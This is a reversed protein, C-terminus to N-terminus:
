GGGPGGCRWGWRRRQQLIGAAGGRRAERSRRTRGWLGGCPCTDQPGPRLQRVCLPPLRHLDAYLRCACPLRVARDHAPFPRPPNRPGPPFCSALAHSRRRVRNSGRRGRTRARAATTTRPPPTRGARAGGGGTGGRAGRGSGPGALDSPAVRLGDAGVDTGGGGGTNCVCVCISRAAVRNGRGRGGRRRRRRSVAHGRQAAGLRWFAGGGGGGGGRGATGRTHLRRIYPLRRRAGARLGCSVTCVCVSVNRDSGAAWMRSGTGSSGRNSASGRQRCRRCSARIVQVAASGSGDSPDAGSCCYNRCSCRCGATHGTHIHRLHPRPRSTYHRLHPQPPATARLGRRPTSHQTGAAAGVRPVADGGRRLGAPPVCTPTNRPM